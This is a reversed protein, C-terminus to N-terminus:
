VGTIVEQNPRAKVTKPVAAYDFAVARFQQLNVIQNTQEHDPTVTTRNCTNLIQRGDADKARFGQVTAYLKDVLDLHALAQQQEPLGYRSHAYNSSVLHLVFRVDAKQVKGALTEPEYPLFQVFIAPYAFDGEQRKAPDTDAYQNNFWDFHEIGIGAKVIHEQLALFIAKQM